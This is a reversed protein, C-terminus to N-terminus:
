TSISSILLQTLHPLFSIIFTLNNYSQAVRLNYFTLHNNAWRCFLGCAQPWHSPFNKYPRLDKAPVNSWYSTLKLIKPKITQEGSQLDLTGRGFNYLIFSLPRFQGLGLLWKMKYLSICSSSLFIKKVSVM